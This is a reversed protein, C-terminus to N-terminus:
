EESRSSEKGHKRLNVFAIIAGATLYMVLTYVAPTIAIQANKLFSTAIVLALASNQYGAGIAISLRQALNIRLLRAGFYALASVSLCLCVTVPGVRLVEGVIMDREGVAVGVVLVCLFFLGGLNVPKESKSAFGPAKAKLIM